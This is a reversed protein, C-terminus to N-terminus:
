EAALKVKVLPVRIKEKPLRRLAPGIYQWNTKEDIFRRLSRSEHENLEEAIHAINGPAEGLAFLIGIVPPQFGMELGAAAFAGDINPPMPRKLVRGVEASIADYLVTREGVFGYREACERIRIGRPDGAPYWRHGLGPVRKGQKRSEAVVRQAAMERSVGEKKMLTYADEIYRATFAPSGSVSGYALFAGAVAAMPDDPNVTAILRAAQAHASGLGGGDISCTLLVEFMRLETEAPLNGCLALYVAEGFSINGTLEMLPYGRILHNHSKDAVATVPHDAKREKPEPM